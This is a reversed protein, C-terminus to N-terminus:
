HCKLSFNLTISSVAPSFTFNYEGDGSGSSYNYGVFYPLTNSCYVSNSDINGSSSVTVLIGNVTMSGNLHLVQDTCQASLFPIEISLIIIFVIIKKM